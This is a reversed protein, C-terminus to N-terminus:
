RYLQFKKTLEKAEDIKYFFCIGYYELDIEPTVAFVKEQEVHTGAVMTETFDTFLIKKEILQNRLTRIQNSNKASLIIFGNESTAPHISNSQDVFDRFRLPAFNAQHQFALGAAMHAVANLARPVEVKKNLVCVFQDVRTNVDM